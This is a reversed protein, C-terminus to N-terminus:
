RARLWASQIFGKIGTVGELISGLKDWRRVMSELVQRREEDELTAGPAHDFVRCRVPTVAKVTAVRPMGLLYPIEGFTDGKGLLQSVAVKGAVDRHELLCIGAVILHLSRDQEGQKTIIDGAAYDRYQPTLM